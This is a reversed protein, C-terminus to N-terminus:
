AGPAYLRHRKGYFTGPKMRISILLGISIMTAVMSSGGYSVLPLPLGVVPMIGITMGINIIIHSALMSALGAALLKGWPNKTYEGASFGRVVLIFYLAILVLAGLFGWEEGVVSFIFDTHREPLFKLMNQTGSLFGKGFLSGSGVAIKSQIITYGAGLPELNPNLFVLLRQKQYSKLGWWLFPAFALTVIGLWLLHKWRIGWVYLIVLLIPLLVLATGLDPQKFILLVPIATLIFPTILNTLRGKKEAVDGLYRALVLPLTIKILESPQLNFGGFSLWRQAGLRTSGVALVLFLLLINIGYLVYAANILRQYGFILVIFFLGLGFIAWNLQKLVYDGSKQFSASYLFLLGLAIILITVGFLIWDFNKLSKFKFM